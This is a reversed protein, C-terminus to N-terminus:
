PMARYRLRIAARGIRDTAPRDIMRPPPSFSRRAADPSRRQCTAGARRAHGASSLCRKMQRLQHRSFYVLVQTRGRRRGFYGGGLLSCGAARSARCRRNAYLGHRWKASASLQCSFLSASLPSANPPVQRMGVDDFPSIVADAWSGAGAYHANKYICRFYSFLRIDAVSFDRRAHRSFILPSIYCAKRRRHRRCPWYHTANEGRRRTM